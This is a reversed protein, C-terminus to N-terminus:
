SPDPSSDSFPASPTSEGAGDAGAGDAWPDGGSMEAAAADMEDLTMPAHDGPMFRAHCSACVRYMAGGAEFVAAKDRAGATRVLDDAARSLRETHRAWDPDDAAYPETRLIEAIEGVRAANDVVGQWEADTSPWLEREGEATLVYGARDWIHEAAPNLSGDMLDHVRELRKTESAVCGALAAASFVGALATRLICGITINGPM